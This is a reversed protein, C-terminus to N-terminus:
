HHMLQQKISHNPIAKVAMAIALDKTLDEPHVKDDVSPRIKSVM